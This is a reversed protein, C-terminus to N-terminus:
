ANSSGQTFVSLKIVLIPKEALEFTADKSHYIGLLYLDNTLLMEEKLQGHQVASKLVGLFKKPEEPVLFPDAFAKVLSDRYAYVYKPNDIVEIESADEVPVLIKDDFNM